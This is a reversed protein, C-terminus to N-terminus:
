IWLSGVTGASGTWPPEGRGSWRAGSVGASWVFPPPRSEAPCAIRGLGWARCVSDTVCSPSRPDWDSRTRGPGASPDTGTVTSQHESGSISRHAWFFSDLEPQPRRPGEPERPM